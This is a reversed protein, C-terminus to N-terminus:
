EDLDPFIPEAYCRCNYIQGAHTTTGDSLTPPTDWRVVEGEMEAHSERVAEDGATRWVYATSGVAQSRAEIMTSNAKAVETRAILMARSETVNGINQLDKAIDEARKGEVMGETALQQAREGAKTPLSTILTVQERLLQRSANGVATNGAMERFGQTFKKNALRWARNDSRAVDALMTSAVKTAWPGLAKSYADLARLMDSMMPITAGDVYPEIIAGVIKAVRRLQSEYYREASKPAQFNSRKKAM